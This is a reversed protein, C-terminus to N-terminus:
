FFVGSPAPLGLLLTFILYMLLTIVLAFVGAKVFVRRTLSSPDVRYDHYCYIVFVLFASAPYFGVVTLLGFAALMLGGPVLIQFLLTDIFRRRAEQEAEAAGEGAPQTRLRKVLAEVIMLAGTIGLGWLVFQPFMASRSPLDTVQLSFVLSFAILVAGLVLNSLM